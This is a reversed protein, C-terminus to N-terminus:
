VYDMASVNPDPISFPNPVGSINTPILYTIAQNDGQDLDTATINIVESGVTANELITAVYGGPPVSFIPRNDNVNTVNIM